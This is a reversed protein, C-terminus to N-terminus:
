FTFRAGISAIHARGAASIADSGESVEFEPLSLYRYGVDLTLTDSMPVTVGARLQWAIGGDDESEDDFEYESIGYGLGAGVYPSFRGADFAYMGNVMGVYSKVSANLDFGAFTDFASTDIKSDFYIMEGEFSFGNASTSGAAVSALVGTEFDADARIDDPPSSAELEVVGAFGGGLNLQVYGQRDQAFTPAGFACGALLAVVFSKRM